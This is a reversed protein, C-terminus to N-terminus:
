VWSSALSLPTWQHDMFTLRRLCSLLHLFIASPLHPPHFLVSEARLAFLCVCSLLWSIELEEM